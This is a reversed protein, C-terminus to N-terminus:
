WVGPFLRWRVRSAYERYGDLEAQLIKDEQLTRLAFLFGGVCAPILAWLSGLAIPFAVTSLITGAYGPHRVYAYPGGTVVHHGRESQIRVFTSFFRNVMMAWFAFALALAFVALAAVQAALPIDPSWGYRGGDLGTVVLPVPYLWPFSFAALRVDERKFGHEASGRERILEPDLVIFGGLIFALYVALYAWAMPWDIRGAPGLLAAALFALFLASAVIDRLVRVATRGQPLRSPNM